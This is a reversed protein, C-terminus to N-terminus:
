ADISVRCVSGSPRHRAKGVIHDPGAENTTAKTARFNGQQNTTRDRSFFTTGEHILRVHWTQHAVTSHMRYTVTITDGLKSTELRCRYPPIRSGPDRAELGTAPVTVTLLAILSAGVAGRRARHITAGSM